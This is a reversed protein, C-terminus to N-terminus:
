CEGHRFPTSLLRFIRFSLALDGWQMLKHSYWHVLREWPSWLNGDGTASEGGLSVVATDLRTPHYTELFIKPKYIRLVINSLDLLRLLMFYKLFFQKERKGMQVVKVQRQQKSCRPTQWLLQEKHQYLQVHTTEAHQRGWCTDQLKDNGTNKCYKFPQSRLVKASFYEVVM